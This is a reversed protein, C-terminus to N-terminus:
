LVEKLRALTGNTRELEAIRAEAAAINDAQTSM